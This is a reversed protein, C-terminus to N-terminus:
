VTTGSRESLQYDFMINLLSSKLLHDKAYWALSQLSGNLDNEINTLWYDNGEAKSWEVGVEGKESRHLQGVLKLSVKEEEEILFSLDVEVLHKDENYNVQFNHPAIEEIYDTM